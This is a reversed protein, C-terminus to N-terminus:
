DAEHQLLVRQEPSLEVPHDFLFSQVLPFFAAPGEAEVMRGNRWGVVTLAPWGSERMTCAALLYEADDLSLWHGPFCVLRLAAAASFESAKSKAALAEHLQQTSALM